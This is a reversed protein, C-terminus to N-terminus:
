VAPRPQRDSWLGSLMFRLQEPADPGPIRRVAMWDIIGNNIGRISSYATTFGHHRLVSKAEDTFAGVPYAFDTPVTGMEAAIRSRCTQVEEHLAATGIRSMLPHSHTHGGITTWETTQRIEDWTMVQRDCTLGSRRVDLAELFADLTAERESDPLSWIRRRVARKVNARGARDLTFAVRDWPLSVTQRPSAEVALDVLDWWFLGGTDAYRTSIFNIAPIRLERLIPYAEKFYDHYGDDFTV